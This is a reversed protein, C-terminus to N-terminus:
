ASTRPRFFPLQAGNDLPEFIVEVPLGIKLDDLDLDRLGATIRVGEEMTVVLAAYPFITEFHRSMPMYCITWTYIEGRGSSERWEWQDSGCHACMFRPIHRWTDCELCCQFALRGAACHAWFEADLYSAPKPPPNPIFDSM